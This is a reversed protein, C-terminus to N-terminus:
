VNLWDVKGNEIDYVAGAVTYNELPLKERILKVNREVNLCSAKREDTEDGIAKKIEDTLTKIFSDAHGSIAAGVAGCHTHGLVLVLPSGLHDVAYEISGLQHDAIVNGAVRIVFLEGIGTLFINEPIIRSDSCAIVVAYPHQGNDTTDKRIAPSIDGGNQTATLYKENGEKLKNIIETTTM